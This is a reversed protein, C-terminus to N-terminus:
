TLKGSCAAPTRFSLEQQSLPNLFSGTCENVLKWFGATAMSVLKQFGPPNVKKLSKKMFNGSAKPAAKM